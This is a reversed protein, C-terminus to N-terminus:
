YEPPTLGFNEFAATMANQIVKRSDVITGDIDWVVLRLSM